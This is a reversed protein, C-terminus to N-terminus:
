PLVTGFLADGQVDGWAQMGCDTHPHFPAEHNWEPLRISERLEHCFIGLICEIIPRFLEEETTCLGAIVVTELDMEFWRGRDKWTDPPTSYDPARWTIRVRVASQHRETYPEAFMTWGPMITAENIVRVADDVKM